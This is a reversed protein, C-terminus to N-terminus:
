LPQEWPQRPPQYDHNSTPASPAHHKQQPEAPAPAPPQTPPCSLTRNGQTRNLSTCPWSNEFGTQSPPQGSRTPQFFSCLHCKSCEKSQDWNHSNTWVSTFENIIISPCTLNKPSYQETLVHWVSRQRKKGAWSWELYHRLETVSVPAVVEHDCSSSSAKAHSSMCITDPVRIYELTSLGATPTSLLHSCKKGPLHQDQPTPPSCYRCQPIAPPMLLGYLVPVFHYWAGWAGTIMTQTAM